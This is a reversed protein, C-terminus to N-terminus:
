GRGQGPEETIRVIEDIILTGDQEVFVVLQGERYLDTWLLVAVRGDDLDIPDPVDALSIQEFSRLIESGRWNFGDPSRMTTRRYYDDSFFGGLEREKGPRDCDLMSDLTAVIRWLTEGDAIPETPVDARIVSSTGRDGTREPIGLETSPDGSPLPDPRLRPSACPPLGSVDDGESGTANPSSADPAGPESDGLAIVRGESTTVILLDGFIVPSRYNPSGADLRWRREGTGADIGYIGGDARTVFLTRGGVVPAVGSVANFEASWVEDGTGADLATLHDGGPGTGNVFVHKADVTLVLVDIPQVAQRKSADTSWATLEHRWLEAGTKADLAYVHGALPSGSDARDRAAVYVAGDTISPAGLISESLGVTWRPAGDVASFAQVQGDETSVVTLGDAVAPSPDGFLYSAPQFITDPGVDGEDDDIVGGVSWDVTGDAISVSRLVGANDSLYVRNNDAALGGVAVGTEIRWREEGGGVPYAALAGDGDSGSAIILADPHVLYTTIYSERVSLMDAGSADIQTVSPSAPDLLYLAGDLVVPQMALDGVLADNTWRVVPVGTPGSDPFSGTRAADGRLMGTGGALAANTPTGFVPSSTPDADQWSVFDGGPDLTQAFVAAILGILAAFSIFVGVGRRRRSASPSYTRAPLALRWAPRAGPMPRTVIKPDLPRDLAALDMLNEELCQAFSASLGRPRSAEDVARATAVLDNPLRTSGSKSPADGVESRHDLLSALAEIEALETPERTSM